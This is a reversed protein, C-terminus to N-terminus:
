LVITTLKVEKLIRYLENGVGYKKDIEKRETLSITVDKKIEVAVQRRVERGLLSYVMGLQQELIQNLGAILKLPRVERPLREITQRMADYDAAFDDRSPDTFFSWVGTQFGALSETIRRNDPGLKKQLTKHIRAFTARYVRMLLWFLSEDDNPDTLVDGRTGVTEVLKASILKYLASTTAFDGLPSTELIERLTRRGDILTVIRFENLSMSVEDTQSCPNTSVRLIQNDNPLAKQIQQWEDIRRTGEMVISMTSINVKRRSRDPLQGEQFVFDGEKWSFLNYLIEEIRLRLFHGLEERTVLKMEILTQGIKKGSSRHAMNARKLDAVTIRGSKILQDGLLTDESDTSYAGVIDGTQFYIEKKVKGRSIIVTGTKQGTSILQLLDPFAVTKLNGTFSM